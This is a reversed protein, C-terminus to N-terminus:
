FLPYLLEEQMCTGDPGTSRLLHKLFKRWCLGWIAFSHLLYKQTAAM